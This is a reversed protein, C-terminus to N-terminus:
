NLKQSIKFYRYAKTALRKVITYLLKLIVYVSIFLTLAMDLDHFVIFGSQSYPYGKLHSFGVEFGYNILYLFDKPDRIKAEIL